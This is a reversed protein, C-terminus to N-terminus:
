SAKPRKFLVHSAPLRAGIQGITASALQHGLAIAKTHEYGQLFGHLFGAAFADGAGTTDKVDTVPSAEAFFTEGRCHFTAGKSGHTIVHPTHHIAELTSKAHESNDGHLEACKLAEVEEENAFYLDIGDRMLLAIKEFHKIVYSRAALTLAVKTGHKRAMACAKLIVEFQSNFSYAEIFIWDSEAILTENLHKASLQEYDGSATFTREGDATILCYINLSPKTPTFKPMHIGAEHMTNFFLDGGGDNGVAGIFAVDSGLKAMSHATNAGSGGPQLTINELSQHILNLSKQDVNQWDGKRLNFRDLLSDEIHALVDIPANGIFTIQPM